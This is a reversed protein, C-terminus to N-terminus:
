RYPTSTLMKTKWTTERTKGTLYQEMMLVAIPAAWTSGFGGNEVVVAVAIQPNDKPAFCIFLSHDTGHPNQATGTKGCFEIDPNAYYRATGHAGAFVHAMGEQVYSFYQPSVHTQNRPFVLKNEISDISRVLHPTIYFGGNAIAAAMNAMQLPTLEIEGQGISLSRITLANWRGKGYFRNFYKESPINGSAQFPIDTDFSHGLGFSWLHERWENYHKTVQKKGNRDINDRFIQWFFPNCSNEIAPILNLPTQHHHTCKIPASSPGNCSYTTNPTIVKEQLAILGCVPKFTSGPPYKAAIARNFLPKLSDNALKKYNKSRDYGILLNPDYFPASVLALIEGSSPEIAVISGRKNFMLAEGLKQLEADLTTYINKGAIAQKDFEGDGFSGMIRNHVDVLYNKIGKTGCLSKEYYSELGSKGIYDGSKYYNDQEIEKPTVEGIYGIAHAAICQEYKRITHAQLYFGPFSYLQEQLLGGTEKSIQSALISPKYNSYNKATLFRNCFDEKTIDLLKCLLATDIQKKVQRPIVMLDYAVENSVLLTNHRDYVLGRPPYITVPRIANNESAYIYQKDIIQIWFLRILYIIAVTFVAILIIYKRSSYNRKLM